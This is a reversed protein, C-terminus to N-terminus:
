SITAMDLRRNPRLVDDIWRGDIWLEIERYPPCTCVRFDDGRVELVECPVADRHRRRSAIFPAVNVLIRDGKELQM